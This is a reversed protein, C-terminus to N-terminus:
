KLFAAKETQTFGGDSLKIMYFGPSKNSPKWVFSHKGASQFGDYLVAIKQGLLNYVELKIDSAKPLNYNIAAEPNFPNPYGATWHLGKEEIIQRITRVEDSVDDAYVTLLPFLITFLVMAVKQM